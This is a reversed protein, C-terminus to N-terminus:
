KKIRVKYLDDLQDRTSSDIENYLKQVYERDAKSLKKLVKNIRPSEVVVETTIPEIRAKKIQSNYSSAFKKADKLHEIVRYKNQREGYWVRFITKKKNM